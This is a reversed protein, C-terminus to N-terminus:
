ARLNRQTLRPQGKVQHLHVQFGLFSLITTVKQGHVGFALHRRQHGVVAQHQGFPRGNHLPHGVVAFGGLNGRGFASLRM